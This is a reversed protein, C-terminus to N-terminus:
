IAVATGVLESRPRKMGRAEDMFRVLTTTHDRRVGMCKM